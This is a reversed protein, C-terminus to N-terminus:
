AGTGNIKREEDAQATVTTTDSSYFASIEHGSLTEISQQSITRKQYLVLTEKVVKLV